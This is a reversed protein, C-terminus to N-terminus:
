GWKFGNQLDIISDLTQIIRTGYVAIFDAMREEQRLGFRLGYEFVYVHTLEHLLVKRFKDYNLTNNIYITKTARDTVALTIIGDDRILISDNPKVSMIHWTHGNVTFM